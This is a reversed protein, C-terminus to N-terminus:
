ERWPVIISFESINKNRINTKINEIHQRNMTCIIFVYKSEKDIGATSQITIGDYRAGIKSPTDDFITVDCRQALVKKVIPYVSLFVNGFGYFAVKYGQDCFEQISQLTAAQGALYSEILTQYHDNQEYIMTNNSNSNKQYIAYIGNSFDDSILIETFGSAQLVLRLTEKFYYGIHETIFFESVDELDRKTNPVEVFIYAGENLVAHIEQLFEQPKDIHELVHRTIVLDFKNSFLEKTFLGNITPVQAERKLPDIGLINCNQNADKLLYLFDGRNSGIELVNTINDFSLHETLFDLADKYYDETSPFIRNDMLTYNKYTTKGLEEYEKSNLASDQFIFGCKQCRSISFDIHAIDEIRGFTSFGQEEKTVITIYEKDHCVPCNISM